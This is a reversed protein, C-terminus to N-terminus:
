RYQGGGGYSERGGSNLGGSKGGDGGGFEGKDIRQQLEKLEVRNIAKQARKAELYDAFTDSRGFTTNQLGKGVASIAALPAFATTLGTTLPNGLLTKGLIAKAVSPLGVKKAAYNLAQEKAINGLVERLPIDTPLFSQQIQPLGFSQNFQFPQSSKNDLLPMLGFNNDKNNPQLFDELRM